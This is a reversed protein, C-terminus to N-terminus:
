AAIRRPLAALLDREAKLELRAIERFRQGIGAEDALGVCGRLAAHAHTRDCTVLDLLLYGLYDQASTGLTRANAPPAL